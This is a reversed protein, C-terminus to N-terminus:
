NNAIFACPACVFAILTIIATGLVIGVLALAIALPIAIILLLALLCRKWRAM